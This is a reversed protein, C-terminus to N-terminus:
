KKYKELSYGKASVRFDKKISDTVYVKKDKTVFIGAIEKKNLYEMSKDLGMVFCATSLGDSVLGSQHIITVSILGSDAPYGTSPDLIHHYRIGDKEFFKEYDGSTSVTVTGPVDVVGLVEGDEARPDQIGIHWDKGDGKDGYVCISGGISIVGGQIGSSKLLTRIEDSAIGKGTAGFDLMMDNDHFIVGSDYTEIKDGDILPLVKDISKQSPIKDNGDEIGWLGALPRICPNYAGDTEKYLKLEENLYTLLEESLEYKGDAAYNRNCHSVESDPLRYSIQQELAQLRKDISRNVSDLISPDEAYLTKKIATGMANGAYVSSETNIDKIEKTQIGAYILLVFLLVSVIGTILRRHRTLFRM